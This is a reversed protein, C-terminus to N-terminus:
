VVLLYINSKSTVVAVLLSRRKGRKKSGWLDTHDHLRILSARLSVEKELCTSGCSFAASFRQWSYSSCPACSFDVCRRLHLYSLFVAVFIVFLSKALGHM